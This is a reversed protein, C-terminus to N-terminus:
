TDVAAKGKNPSLTRLWGALTIQRLNHEQSCNDAAFIIGMLTENAFWHVLHMRKMRNEASSINM